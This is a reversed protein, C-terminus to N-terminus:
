GVVVAKKMVSKGGTFDKLWAIGEHVIDLELTYKGNKSPSKIIVPVTISEGSLVNEPLSSHLELRAMEAITQGTSDLWRYGVTFNHRGSAAWQVKGVNQVQVLARFQEGLGVNSEISSSIWTVGYESLPISQLLIDVSHAGIPAKELLLYKDEGVERISVPVTVGDLRAEAVDKDWPLLVALTGAKSHDVSYQLSIVEDSARQRLWVSYGTSPQHVQIYGNTNGLRPALAFGESNVDIGFLGEIIANGVAAASIMYHDSGSLAGTVPHQWEVINNPHRSWDKAIARLHETALRSYGASFEAKVQVGGWWDWQAGNQYSYPFYMLHHNFTSEPYPPYLTLGPKSVGASIRAAELRSLIVGRYEPEAMGSDVAVANIVSIISDEDFDHALPTIHLMTRYFGKDPQWLWRNAKEKLEKARQEWVEARSRQQVARNMEALQIIASYTFAQDYLSAIWYEGTISAETARDGGQFKVDGWDTTHARQILGYTKNLRATYFSEMASDLRDSISVANLRCRLWDVGGKLKFYQYAAYVISPEEDSTATSKGSQGDPNILGLLLGVSLLGSKDKLVANRDIQRVLVEETFRKLFPAPYLYQATAFAYAMDRGYVEKYSHGPLFAYVEGSQGNFRFANNALTNSISKNLTHLDPITDVAWSLTTLAFPDPYIRGDKNPMLSVKSLAPAYSGSPCPEEITVSAISDPEGNTSPPYSVSCASSEAQPPDGTYGISLESTADSTSPSYIYHSFKLALPTVLLQPICFLLFAIQWYVNRSKYIYKKYRDLPVSEPNCKEMNYLPM